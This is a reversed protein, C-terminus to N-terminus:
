FKRRVLEFAECNELDVEHGRIKSWHIVNKINLKNADPRMQSQYLSILEEKTKPDIAIYTNPTFTKEKSNWTYTPLEYSYIEDPIFPLTPRCATITAEYVTRHDQHFSTGPFFLIHPKFNLIEKELYTIIDRIPIMDMRGDVGFKYPNKEDTIWINYSIKGFKSYYSIINKFETVRTSGEVLEGNKHIFEVGTAVVLLIRVEYGEKLYRIITGGVGFESDDAHPSIVMVRKM